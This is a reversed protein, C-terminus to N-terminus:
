KIKKRFHLILVRIGWLVAGFLVFLVVPGILAAPETVTDRAYQIAAWVLGFALGVLVYRM